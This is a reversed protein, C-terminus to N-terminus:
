LAKRFNWFFGAFLLVFPTFIALAPSFVENQGLIIAANMMTFFVIFVLLGAAYIFFSSFSRHFRICFPSIGVVVLLPLLPIMMKFYLVTKIAPKDDRYRLDNSGKLQFLEFLSRNELPILRTKTSKSELNMKKFPYVEFSEKKIFLGEERKLHDVFHGVVEDQEWTLVKIRWLDDAHVVWFVDFFSADSTDYNQYVLKSGDDLYLVHIRGEKGKSKSHKLFAAHFQDIYNLAKPTITQFTIYSASSLLIALLFFPRLLCSLRVGASQLAILENRTNATTLVKITAILFALPVLMPM